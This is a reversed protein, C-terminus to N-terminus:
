QAAGGPRQSRNAPHTQADAVQKLEDLSLLYDLRSYGRERGDMIRRYEALM